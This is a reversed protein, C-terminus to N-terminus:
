RKAGKQEWEQCWDTPQRWEQRSSTIRQRSCRRSTATVGPMRGAPLAAPSWFTVLKPLPDSLEADALQTELNVSALDALQVYPRVHALLAEGDERVHHRRVLATEGDRPEFYRRALMADGAFLLLNRGPKKQVLTVPAPEADARMTQVSAYYGDASVEVRVLGRGLESRQVIAGQLQAGTEDQIRLGPAANAMASCGFLLAALMIRTRRM